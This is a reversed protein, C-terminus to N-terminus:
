NACNLVHYTIQVIRVRYTIQVIRVRYTIQVNQSM